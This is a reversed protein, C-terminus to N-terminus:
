LSTTRHTHIPLDTVDGATKSHILGRLWALGMWFLHFLPMAICGGLIVGIAVLPESQWNLIPYIFPDCWTNEIQVTATPHGERSPYCVGVGGAGWYILSFGAYYCGFLIPYIFHFLKWPRRSIFIDIFCAISNCGHLFVNLIVAAENKLLHAEVVDLFLDILACFFLARFNLCLM